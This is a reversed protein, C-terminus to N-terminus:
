AIHLAGPQSSLMHKRPASVFMAQLSTQCQDPNGRLVPVMLLLARLPKLACANYVYRISAYSGGEYIRALM